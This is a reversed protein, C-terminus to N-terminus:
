EQWGRQSPAAIRCPRRPSLQQPPLPRREELTMERKARSTLVMRECYMEDISATLIREPRWCM